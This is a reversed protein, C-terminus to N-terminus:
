RALRDLQRRCPGAFASVLVPGGPPASPSRCRDSRCSRNMDLQRAGVRSPTAPPRSEWVPSAHAKSSGAVWEPQARRADPANSANVGRGILTKRLGGGIPETHM